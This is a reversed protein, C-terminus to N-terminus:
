VAKENGEACLSQTSCVICFKFMNKENYINEVQKINCAKENSM